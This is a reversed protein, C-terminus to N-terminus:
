RNYFLILFVQLRYFYLIINITINRIYFISIYYPCKEKEKKKICRQSNCTGIECNNCTQMMEMM